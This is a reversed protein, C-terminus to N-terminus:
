IGDNEPRFIYIIEWSFLCHNPSFGCITTKHYSLGYVVMNMLVLLAENVGCCNAQDEVRQCTKSSASLMPICCLCCLAHYTEKYFLHDMHMLGTWINKEKM